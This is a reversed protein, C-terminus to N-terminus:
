SEGEFSRSTCVKQALSSILLVEVTFYVHAEEEESFVCCFVHQSNAPKVVSWVLFESNVPNVDAPISAVRHLQLFVKCPFHYEQPCVSERRRKYWQLVRKEFIRKLFHGAVQSM